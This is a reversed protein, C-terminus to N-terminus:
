WRGFEVFSSTRDQPMDGLLIKAGGATSPLAIRVMRM